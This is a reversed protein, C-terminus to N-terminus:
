GGPTEAREREPEPGRESATLYMVYVHVEDYRVGDYLAEFADTAETKLAVLTETEPLAQFRHEVRYSHDNGEVTVSIEYVHGETM